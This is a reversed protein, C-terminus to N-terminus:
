NMLNMLDQDQGANTMQIQDIAADNANADMQLEAAQNILTSYKILSETIDPFTEKCDHETTHLDWKLEKLDAQCQDWPNFHQVYSPHEHTTEEDDHDDDHDPEPEPDPTLWAPNFWKLTKTTSGSGSSSGSSGTSGFRSGSTTGSTGTSGSGYRSGSTSGTGTSGYRSGSTTGLRSNKYGGTLSGYKSGTTGTGSNPDYRSGSTTGTGTSGYRSGSYHGSASAIAALAALTFFSRM